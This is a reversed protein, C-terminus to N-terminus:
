LSFFKFFIADSVPEFCKLHTAYKFRHYGRVKLSYYIQVLGSVGLMTPPCVPVHCRESLSHLTSTHHARVRESEVEVIAHHVEKSLGLVGKNIFFEVHQVFTIRFLSAFDPMKLECRFLFDRLFLTPSFTLSFLAANHATCLFLSVFSPSSSFYVSIFFTGHLRQNFSTCASFSLFLSLPVQILKCDAWADYDGGNQIELKLRVNEGCCYGTRELSGRLLLPGKGCCLICTNRKAM